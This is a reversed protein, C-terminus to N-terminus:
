KINNEAIYQGLKEFISNGLEIGESGVFSDWATTPAFWLHLNKLCTDDGSEFLIISEKLAVAFETADFFGCSYGGEYQAVLQHADKLEEILVTKNM